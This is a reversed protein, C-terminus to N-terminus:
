EEDVIRKRSLFMKMLFKPAMINVRRLDYLKLTIGINFSFCFWGQQEQEKKMSEAKEELELIQADKEEVLFDKEEVRSNAEELLARCEQIENDQDSIRLEKETM